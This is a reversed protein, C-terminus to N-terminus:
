RGRVGISFTHGALDLVRVEEFGLRRLKEFSNVVSHVFDARSALYRGCLCEDGDVSDSAVHALSVGEPLLLSKVLHKLPAPQQLLAIIWGLHTMAKQYLCKDGSPDATFSRLPQAHKAVLRM